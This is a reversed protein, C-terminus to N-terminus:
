RAALHTDTAPNWARYDVGNVIGHLRKGRETLVGQLGCGYYPTQIERAYTPSVTNLLDAFVIGAKLFNLHGHFELQHYNFLRWDLGTLPLDYHWFVGQYALNHISFLTRLRQYRARLEPSAHRCYEEVLYVPVLGTQWDHVHLVDPWCELLRLAELVARCFFVFRECNDPYDALHGNAQTYQYLG